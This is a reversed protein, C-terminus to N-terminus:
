TKLRTDLQNALGTVHKKEMISYHDGAIESYEPLRDCYGTWQDYNRIEEGAASYFHLVTELKRGPIYITRARDLSRGMNWYGILAEIGTESFDPIGRTISEPLMKKVTEMGINDKEILAPVDDWQLHGRTGSGGPFYLSLRRNESEKTFENGQDATIESEKKPPVVDILSLNAVHEGERELQLAMEFAITGGISWGCLNYPGTPSIRKIKKIYQQALQEVTTNFPAYNKLPEARIGWSEIDSNLKKCLEIYGEVEGSGDHILFIHKNKKGGKKLLVLRDDGVGPKMAATGTKRIYAAQQRITPSNFVEVLPCGTELEKQIRNVLITATLSHGGLQFFNDNRGIKEVPLAMIDAWIHTLKKETENSPAEYPIGTKAEPEPLAKRDIKGTTTLPFTEMPVYYSPIMYEPVKGPLYERLKTDDCTHATDSLIYYACLYKDRNENERAIVVVEEIDKHRNLRNEIEGTEIRHGRIKVQHDLRGLYEINGDELWRALDGTRYFIPLNNPFSQNNPLQNNTIPSQNNPLQNNPFSLNNTIPLGKTFTECTLEPNNLYGAALGAGTITLEGPVGVPVLQGEKGTIRIFVNDIPKGVFVATQNPTFRYVTACVSNETPGYENYLDVNRLKAYHEEVLERGFSEGAITVAKLATLSQHIEKLLTKYFSPVMAFYTIKCEKIVKQLYDLNFRDEERILVLRSGSLLTTFIDAVSGDFTYSSVQMVVDSSGFNYYKKRWTLYNVISKNQLLVGKPKGTSGSTYIIYAPYHSPTPIELNTGGTEYLANDHLDIQTGEFDLETENVPTQHATLLWRTAAEKLQYKKREAPFAPEIPLYAAGTKLIALLATIMEVSRRIMVAVVTGPSVGRQKLTRALRNAKENLESYKLESKAHCTKGEGEATIGSVPGELAINDPTRAAQEEFLQRITKNKPYDVATDNFERILQEKEQQSLMEIRPLRQQPNGAVAAAIRKLYRCYREITSPEFLKTSYEITCLLCPGTEMVALALDFKSIRHAELTTVADLNTQATGGGSGTGTDVPGTNEAQNQMIFTVDFLPNRAADRQVGAKEVLEEFPYEQNEFAALTTEKIEEQMELCTKNGAPYNRLPLTNVFMGIIKQLDAHRRGATPSGVIIDEQGTLRYLLINFIALLKMFLTVNEKSCGTKLLATEEGGIYFAAAAGEFNMVKPRTYDAPLTLVPKEGSYTKLWYAEQKKIQEQQRKGKLWETYDKYQFKLPPQPVGAYIAAFEERLINLSVGDSIIHHMDILLISQEREQILGVRLLPAKDLPFTKIFNEKISTVDGPQGPLTDGPRYYELHFQVNDQVKQVPREEKIHFSTRLSEHREILKNFTKELKERDPTEELPISDPMNYAVNGPEMQQLIYLRKQAPSLPYYEKNEATPIAEYTEKGTEKIFATLGLITPNKFVEALPLKVKLIKHVRAAMVTAKLSHGGLQFFSANMSIHKKEIGLIQAWIKTLEKQIDNEPAIYDEQDQRYRVGPVDVAALANRDTKGSPTLPLKEMPVFYAPLMYDPLELALYERVSPLQLENDFVIYAFLSKDGKKETKALVAADKIHEHELLRNEIEGLEVRFGRIKIQQDRRGLFEINGDALWRVMDGTKYYIGNTVPAEPPWFGKRGDRVPKISLGGVGGFAKIQLATRPQQSQQGKEPEKAKQEKTKEKQWSGVALQGSTKGFREATLEPNNLYGRGVQIGAIYLEGPIGVPQLNEGSDVIYIGTNSVPKGIPPIAPLEGAPDLTLATVVHTESPGYHNHLYVKNEQLFTRFEATIVVQEGATVIHEVGKPILDRFNEDGLLFKIYSAPLFLTKIQNKEVLEFMEGINDRTETNLLYLHGGTNLTSFIEQFSVDFSMTTFQLVKTFDINTYQYQYKLLNVLNRHELMVGKPKGTSGSTYIVYAISSAPNRISSAPNRISSAPNRVSSELHQIGSEPAKEFDFQEINLVVPTSNKNDHKVTSLRIRSKNDVIIIPTNSDDLMYQIREEPYDPDIPLYAGGAKMIAPMAIVMEISRELMLAVVTDQRLGKSKLHLALSNAKENLQSYSLERKIWPASVATKHPTKQAQQEFQRHITENADIEEQVGISMELIKEKERQTIIEITAIQLHNREKNSIESLIKRFYGIIAEINKPKFLKTCYELNLFLREGLDVATLNMDFKSTAEEHKYTETEQPHNQTNEILEDTEGRYEKQNLHNVMVNFLPNRGTDRRLSLNEVLEEFQYEQNEFAELTHKKVEAIYQTITKASAPKNRMALTNVFMGIIQELDAHRRAAIPTGVIIDEQGSLKALLITYLALITMYLTANNEEALKKLEGTEQPTLIFDVRNGEFSQMEPRPYDTPLNLVPIEGSFTRQWFNKQRKIKEKQERSNQWQSYDKYSIALPTLEEGIYLANFDRELNGHSVGDSVIHHIDILLNYKVENEEENRQLGVRVLPAEALNFPKIFDGIGYTQKDEIKFLVKEKIRQVPQEDVLQFSTRLSEHRQILRKYTTELKQRDPQGKQLPINLPVNYATSEPELQQLIYLRKQASSLPYYDKKETPEIAKYKDGATKKIYAALGRITPTTFIETLPLKVNLAKHVKATLVTAKLSHGGIAFFNDDIGIKRSIELQDRSGFLIENWIGALKVELENAPATYKTKSQGSEIAPLANHDIKGSHTLPMKDVAIYNTPVMYDPIYQSLYTILETEVPPTDEITETYYACLYKDGTPDERTVVVAEKIKKHKLLRNEIEGLEIRYGRIKVQKDIRGLYQIIGGPQWKGLDGTKYLTVPQTQWSPHTSVFKEATLEPNNIYGRALSDGGICIEGTVGVPQLKEYRDLIYVQNNDIPRGIPIESYNEEVVFSTAVVTNETPGYNNVMRYERKKFQRLTDGGTIVNRLTKNPQEMFQECMQTPLFTITIEHAEFYENLKFVDAKIKQDIIYIAAGAILYPFIEWVSADFGVGAYKTTRDRHTVDYYRNHWHCLNSLGRHEVAVGKPQGTTGSTYIVYAIAAAPHQSLPAKKTKQTAIEMALTEYNLLIPAKKQNQRNPKTNNSKTETATMRTESKGDVLVIKPRSDKLMYEIRNEPNIPDIPLYAAGSKLIAMIMTIMQLSQEGMIAAITGPKIGKEMLKGATLAAQENLERYTISQQPKGKERAGEKTLPSPDVICINHPTREVQEEFLRHITKNKPYEKTTNNFESILQKKEEETIVEIEAIKKHTGETVKAILQKFYNIYRRITQIKFLRTCYELSFHINGSGEVAVITIDFKSNNSESEYPRMILQNDANVPIDGAQAEMNQLLFVTDFLPNRSADRNVLLKGVLDEFQYDQNEFAQLTRKKVEKLYDGLTKNGNPFNRMTLTNVFMGIIRELNVHRRGAVPTGVVIDEQGSLKALLITALAQLLMYLTVGERAAIRNLTGALGTSLEFNVVDGEFSQIAPRPYDLPLELVPVEGEFQKLWYEEQKAVAERQANSNQWLAYDKYQYELPPLTGGAYIAAFERSFLEMSTGDTVIHHIDLMLIYKREKEKVLSARILPAISLNFPRIFNSILGTLGTGVEGTGMEVYQISFEIEAEPKIKQVPNEDIMLFSTRMSEHREIMKKFTNELKQRDPLGELVLIQPVNYGTSEEEMQQLVYLRKQASSLQYYEKKEVKELPSFTEGTVTEVTAALERITPTKFLQALPIKINFAEHLKSILITAKLSHGGLEFFDADIGVDDKEGGLVQAWIQVFKEEVPNGPAAYAAGGTTEPEPLAKRDVKGNPTLPITELQVFHAPVMYDPLYQGLTKRIEGTDPQGNNEHKKVVLYACLYKENEKNELDVVVADHINGINKIRNEIEGPEIRYGRIKVQTDIRGLFEVTGDPMWRAQDGTRYLTNNTIPYQNDTIPTQNDKKAEQEKNTIQIKNKTIQKNNTTQLKCNAFKESTLEPNNLYGRALGDGGVWLEGPVGIPVPQNKTDLIYATSNAIPKGIPITGEYDRDIQHTLSFTTNETPGYGNIVTIEPFRNRLRRIHPPSLVDGGVLLKKIGDFIEIDLDSMRNFLPSTMWMTSVKNKKVAEKLRVNNLLTDKGVLHLSLGNLLAGWIEFTSADFELAGTLLISEDEKFQIYNTNKVLRVVSRHEVMVGKPTGTSGSTYIIYALNCCNHRRQNEKLPEKNEISDLKIVTEVTTNEILNQGATEFNTLLIRVNCDDVLYKKREDPYEYNLPLYAAGTKLIALVAVIVNITNEAMLAVPEEQGVGKLRLNAALDAAQENLQGYTMPEGEYTLAVHNSKHSAQEEFLEDITKGAPYPTATENFTELIQTKEQLSLIEFGTVPTDINYVAQELLKEFHSLLREITSRDYLGANYEVDVKIGTEGTRTFNFLIKPYTHSLYKKEHINELMIATDFLPFDKGAATMNLQFLLTEIPYNQHENAESIVTRVEQLLLQKFTMQDQLRIRLPLVTNVFDGEREQKFIPSGLITELSGTYKYLLITLGATLVMYLRHEKGKSLKITQSACTNGLQIELTDKKGDLNSIPHDYPITSKKLEGSYKELWYEGEKGYQAAALAAKGTFQKEISM